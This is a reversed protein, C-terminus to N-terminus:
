SQGGIENAQYNSEHHNSKDYRYFQIIPNKLANITAFHYFPPESFPPEIVGNVIMRYYYHGQHASYPYASTVNGLNTRVTYTSSSSFTTEM